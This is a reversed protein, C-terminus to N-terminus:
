GYVVGVVGWGGCYDHVEDVGYSRLFDAIKKSTRPTDLGIEPNRHFDQRIEKFEDKWSAILPISAKELDVM